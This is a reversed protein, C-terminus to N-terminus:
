CLYTSNNKLWNSKQEDWFNRLLLKCYTIAFVIEVM